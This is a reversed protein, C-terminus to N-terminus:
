REDIVEVVLGIMIVLCFVVLIVMSLAALFRM